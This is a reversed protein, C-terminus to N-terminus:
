QPLVLFDAELCRTRLAAHFDRLRDHAALAHACRAQAGIACMQNKRPTGDFIPVM